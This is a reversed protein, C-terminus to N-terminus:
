KFAINNEFNWHNNMKLVKEIVDRVCGLGGNVPSIYHSIKKVEPAADAPCCSLFVKHLLPIDPLDDGMYLIEQWDITHTDIYESIFQM